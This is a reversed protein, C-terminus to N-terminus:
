PKGHLHLWIKTGDPSYALLECVEDITIGFRHMMFLTVHPSASVIGPLFSRVLTANIASGYHRLIMQWGALNIYPCQQVATLRDVVDDLPIDFTELLWQACGHKGRSLLWFLLTNSNDGGKIHSYQLNFKHIVWKVTKSSPSAQPDILCEGMFEPTLVSSYLDEGVFFQLLHQLTRLDGMLGVLILKMQSPNGPIPACTPPFTELLFALAESRHNSILHSIVDSTCSEKLPPPVHQIFWKLGQWLSWSSNSGSCLEALTSEICMEPKSNIDDMVHFTGDLWDAVEINSHQLANILGKTIDSPALTVRKSLWRPLSSSSSSSCSSSVSSFTSCALLFSEPTPSFQKVKVLWRAFEVNGLNGCLCSLTEQSPNLTSLTTLVWKAVDPNQMGRLLNDDVSSLSRIDAEFFQCDEVSAHANRILWLVTDVRSCPVPFKREIFWRSNAPCNGRVCSMFLDQLEPIGISSELHFEDFLWRFVQSKEGLLSLFEYLIWPADNKGIGLVSLLWQAVDVDDSEIVRRRLVGGGGAGVDDDGSDNNGAVVDDAAKWTAVCRGDWLMPLTGYGGGGCCCCENDSSSPIVGGGRDRDRDGDGLLGRAARLHGGWCLGAVVAAVEKVAIGLTHQQQQRQLLGKGERQAQDAATTATTETTTETTEGRHNSIWAICSPAPARAALAIAACTSGRSGPAHGHPRALVRRSALAALPFMAEAARFVDVHGRCWDSGDDDSDPHVYATDLWGPVVVMDWVVRSLSLVRDRGAAAAEGPRCQQQRDPAPTSYM